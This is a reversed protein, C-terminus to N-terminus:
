VLLVLRIQNQIQNTSGLINAHTPVKNPMKIQLSFHLNPSLHPPSDNEM